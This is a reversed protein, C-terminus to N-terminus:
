ENTVCANFKFNTFWYIKSFRIAAVMPLLFDLLAVVSDSDSMKNLM